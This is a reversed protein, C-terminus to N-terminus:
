TKTFGDLSNYTQLDIAEDIKAQIYENNRDYINYTEGTSEDVATENRDVYYENLIYTYKDDSNLLNYYDLNFSDVAKDLTGTIAYTYDEGKGTSLLENYTDVNFLNSSQAIDYVLEAENTYKKKYSVAM